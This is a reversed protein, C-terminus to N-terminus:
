LNTLLKRPDCKSYLGQQGLSLTQTTRQTDGITLADQSDPLSDEDQGGCWSQCSTGWCPSSIHTHRYSDWGEPTDEEKDSLSYTLTNCKYNYGGVDVDAQRQSRRCGEANQRRERPLVVGDTWQDWWRSWENYRLRIHICLILVHITYSHTHVNIITFTDRTINACPMKICCSSQRPTVRDAPESRYSYHLSASSNSFQTQSAFGHLALVCVCVCVYMHVCGLLLMM